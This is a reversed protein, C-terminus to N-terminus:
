AELNIPTHRDSVTCSWALRWTRGGGRWRAAIRVQCSPCPCCSPWASTARRSSSPRLQQLLHGVHQGLHPPRYQAGAVEATFAQRTASRAFDGTRRQEGSRDRQATVIASRPTVAAPQSRPTDIGSPATDSGVVGSAPGDESITVIASKRDDNAPKPTSAQPLPTARKTV